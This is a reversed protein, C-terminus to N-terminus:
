SRDTAICCKWSFDTMCPGSRSVLFEHQLFGFPDRAAAAAVSSSPMVCPPLFSGSARVVVFTHRGRKQERKDDTLARTEKKKINNNNQTPNPPGECNSEHLSKKKNYFCNPPHTCPRFKALFIFLLFKIRNKPSLPLTEM